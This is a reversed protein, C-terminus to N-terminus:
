HRGLALTYPRASGARQQALILGWLPALAKMAAEVRLPDVEWHISLVWSLFLSVPGGAGQLTPDTFVSFLIDIGTLLLPLIGFWFSRCIWLTIPELKNM